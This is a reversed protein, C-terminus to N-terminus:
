KENDKPKEPIFDFIHYFSQSKNFFEYSKRTESLVRASSPTYLNKLWTAKMVGVLFKDQGQYKGSQVTEGIDGFHFVNSMNKITSGLMVPNQVAEFYSQGIGINGSFAENLNRMAMYASLQLLYNDEDDDDDAAKKLMIAMVLMVTLMGGIVMSTKLNQQAVDDLEDYAESIKKKDKLVTKFIDYIYKPSYILGEEEGGLELDTRRKSFMTSTAMVLWKKLSLIFSWRPDRGGYGEHHKSIEMTTQESINNIAAIVSVRDTTIDGNYGDKELRDMDFKGEDNMYDYMSNKTYKEFEAKIDKASKDPSKVKQEKVFQRWTKFEGDILRYEMLKVLASQAQLPFNTMAMLSFESQPLLRLFTNYKSDSYRESLNYIGFSYMIKNIRAEPDFKGIDKISEPFMKALAAAARANSPSYINKGTASMILNQIVGSSFNTMAVIPSFALAFKIGLNRFNFLFKSLDVTRTSGNTWPIEFEIKTSLTKGFYNFDIMEKMMKHYNTDTARKGKKFSQSELGQIASTADAYHKNRQEYLNANNLGWVLSHFVDTTLEEPKLKYFGYKPIKLNEFSNEMDDERFTMMELAYDKVTNWKGKDKVFAESKEYESRRKQPMMFVYQKKLMDSKDLIRLQADMMMIYAKLNEPNNYIDSMDTKFDDHINDLEAMKKLVQSKEVDSKATLYEENYLQKIDVDAPTSYKFSPTIKMLSLPKGNYIVEDTNSTIYNDLLNIINIKGSNYDQLFSDYESNADYRKYWSPANSIFFAKKIDDNSDTLGLERATDKYREVISSTPNKSLDSKLRGYQGMHRGINFYEKTSFFSEIDKITADDFSTDTVSKFNEHFVTNMRLNSGSSNDIYVTNIGNKEFLKYIEERLDAMSDEIRFITDKDLTSMSDVNVEKYDNPMKYKKIILQKQLILKKYLREYGKMEMKDKRYVGVNDEFGKFDIGSNSMDTNDWYEQTAEFMISNKLWERLGNQIEVDNSGHKNQLSKLVTEYEKAFNDKITQAMQDDVHTLNISNWKMYDFALRASKSHSPKLYFVLESALPENEGGFLTKRPNTSVVRSKDINPNNKLEGYFYVEFGQKAEGDHEFPNTDERRQELTVRNDGRNNSRKAQQQYWLNTWPATGLDMQKLKDLYNKNREKQKPSVWKENSLNLDYEYKYHYYDDDTELLSINKQFQEIYDELKMDDYESPLIKKLIKLEYERQAQYLKVEDRGSRYYGKKDIFDILKDKYQKLPNILEEVDDMFGLKYKAQLSNIIQSLLVVFRNSAKSVHGFLKFWGSTDTQVQQIAAAGDYLFNKKDEATLKGAYNELLDSAVELADKERRSKYDGKLIGMHRLAEEGNSIMSNKFNNMRTFKEPNQPDRRIDTKRLKAVIIALLEETGLLTEINATLDPSIVDNKGMNDLLDNFGVSTSIITKIFELVEKDGADYMQQIDMDRTAEKIRDVAKSSISYMVNIIPADPKSLIDQLTENYLRNKIDQAMVDIDNRLDNTLKSKFFNIFDRLIQSLKNFFGIETETRGQTAFQKQLSNALMKGLVEKRVAKELEAKDSIQKSYIERYYEAHEVYEQTNNVTQLMRNIEDQNWAEIVFHSFEESMNDLTMKGDAFAIINNTFDILAEANPEVGFKIKYNQKYQEISQTSFGMKKMFSDMMQLLQPETYSVPKEKRNILKDLYLQSAEVQTKLGQLANKPVVPNFDGFEFELGNRKFSNYPHNILLEEKELIDAAMNNTAEYTNPKIQSEKLYGNKIYSQIQGNQTQKNFIPTEMATIFSGDELLFGTQYSENSNNLVDYISSFLEGRDSKHFIIPEKTNKNQVSCTKM